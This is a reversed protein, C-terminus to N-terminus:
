FPLYGGRLEGEADGVIERSRMVSTLKSYYQQIMAQSTGCHTALLYLDVGQKLKNTIYTHRFSYLTYKPQLKDLSVFKLLQDFMKEFQPKIDQKEPLRFILNHPPVAQLKSDFSDIGKAKYFYTTITSIADIAEASLPVDRFSSKKKSHIKGTRIRAKYVNQAPEYTIDSFRLNLAEEGVRIGTHLLFQMYHKLLKRYRFTIEKRSADEFQSYFASIQTLHKEEFMPREEDAEVEISPLKPIEYEKILKKEVAIDFLHKLTTKRIRLQTTSRAFKTLYTKIAAKDVEKIKVAGLEPIIENRLVRAYDVYIKKSKSDFSQLLENGLQSVLSSRNSSFIAPSLKNEYAYFYGWAKKIAEDKDATKLTQRHEEGRGSADKIWMRVYYNKSGKQKLIALKPNLKEYEYGSM